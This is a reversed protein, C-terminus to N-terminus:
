VTSTGSSTCYRVNSGVYASPALRALVPKVAISMESLVLFVIVKSTLASSGLM